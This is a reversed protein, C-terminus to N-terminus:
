HSALVRAKLSTFEHETLVGRDRLEALKTLEDAPSAYSAAVIRQFTDADTRAQRNERLHMDGGRVILYAFVGVFPFILLAVIWGARGWGGLDPSRFVDSVIRWLLFVWFIWIFVELITWFIDLLPM